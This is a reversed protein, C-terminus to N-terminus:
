RASRRARSRDARAPARRRTRAHAAGGRHPARDRPGPAIPAISGNSEWEVTPGVSVITADPPPGDCPAVIRVDVDLQRLERALGLVQGQVGGPRSMSYPCIMAVKMPSPAPKRSMRPREALEAAPPAVARARGPDADEFEDRSASPSAPSTTACAARGRRDLDAAAGRRPSRPGARLVGRGAAARRRHAARADGPGRAADHARRLVRRRRRRRHPRPREAPVRHPQRAAGAARQAVRRARDARGRARDGRAPPRVVRAAGAARLPEVVALMHHGQAAMWAAAWEWGGLHPLALIVGKGRRARRDVHEYGEITFNPVVEGRRSRPPCGSSRSGTAATGSSCRTSARRSRHPRDGAAPPAGVDAPERTQPWGGIRGASGARARARARAPMAQAVRAGRRSVRLTTLQGRMARWSRASRGPAAGNPAPVRGRASDKSRAAGDVVLAAADAPREVGRPRAPAPQPPRAALRYVRVFRQVATFATLVLMLWLMPVLVPFALAIGLLVFREAREMLGGRADLGLSEARAREYSILMSCAAVAFALIPLYSSRDALYWAVGGFLLADSARDTVSDFFAGRPSAQGSGRAISGDLLDSSGSSPSRRRGGLHLPRVRHAGRDRGLVALGFVTLADATIGLRRLRDGIPGLGQEVGKRWRRDLM